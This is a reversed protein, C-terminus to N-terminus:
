NGAASIGNERGLSVQRPGVVSLVKPRQVEAEIPRGLFDLLVKVREKAPLVQTVIAELGQFAGETIRITDGVKIEPDVVIVEDEGSFQRLSGIVSENLAAIRTGFRVISTIGPSAQVQRYLDRYVFQAFLYGPFLAEVFWVPGRRTAKRYRLRPAFVELGMMQRIGAAAFHEHKPQSKLCFWHATEAKTLEESSFTM